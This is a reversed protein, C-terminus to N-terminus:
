NGDVQNVGLFLQKWNGLFFTRIGINEVLDDNKSAELVSTIKPGSPLRFFFSGSLQLQGYYILKRLFM